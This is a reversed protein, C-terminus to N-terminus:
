QKAAVLGAVSKWSTVLLATCGQPSFLEHHHSGPEAHIFDGARLRRGETVLDGTLVYLEEPGDHDHEPYRVGPDIEIMLLAYGVRPAASLLKFRTGPFPGEQWRTEGPVIRFGAPLSAEGAMSVPEPPPKQPTRRVAELVRARLAAPPQAAPVQRALGDMAAQFELWEARIEANGATLAELRVREPANAPDLMVQIMLDHLEDHTM